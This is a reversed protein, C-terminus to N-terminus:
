RSSGLQVMQIQGTLGQMTEVPRAVLTLVQVPCDAPVSFTGNFAGDAEGGLMEVRGFERGDRHCTLSWYPRSGAPQNIGSSRGALDYTGAPLVQVQRLLPGGVSPPASFDFVGGRDSQEISSAVGGDNVAVWDLATPSQLRAAFRPDRSRRPDSGPRIAAYYSWVDESFEGVILADIVASQAEPPVKVAARHLARLLQAATRPDSGNAAVYNIFATGWGPSAGLTTVLATRVVPDAIAAALIPFLLEPASRATRLAIDYHTLANAVDGRSVAYEIAWIQTQLDRRSLRQAYAFLARADGTRGGLQRLLGLASAAAVATPDQHLAFTALREARWRDERTSAPSGVLEQAYQAAIRGDSPALAYARAPDRKYNIFASTRSVGVYACASALAALAFRVSWEIGSRRTWPGRAAM